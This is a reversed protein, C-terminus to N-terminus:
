NGNEFALLLDTLDICGGADAKAIVPTTLNAGTKDKTIKVALPLTVDGTGVSTTKDTTKPLLASYANTSNYARLALQINADGNYNSENTAFVLQHNTLHYQLSGVEVGNYNNFEITPRYTSTTASTSPKLKIGHNLFTKTGSIEQAGTLTVVSGSTLYGQATVWERM